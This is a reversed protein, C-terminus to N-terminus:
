KVLEILRRSALTHMFQMTASEAREVDVELKEALSQVIEALSTSGDCMEWVFVGTADLEFRKVAGVPARFPGFNRIPVNITAGGDGKPEIIARAVRLPKAALQEERNRPRLKPKTWLM